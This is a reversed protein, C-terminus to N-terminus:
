AWSLFHSEGLSLFLWDVFPSSGACLTAEAERNIYPLMAIASSEDYVKLSITKGAVCM